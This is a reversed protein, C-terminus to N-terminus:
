LIWLLTEPHLSPSTLLNLLLPSTARRSEGTAAMNFPESREGREDAEHETNM